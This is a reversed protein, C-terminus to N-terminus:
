REAVLSAIRRTGCGGLQTRTCRTVCEFKIAVTCYLPMRHVRVFVCVSHVHGGMSHIHVDIHAIM